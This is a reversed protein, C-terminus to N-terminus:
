AAHRRTIRAMSPLMHSLVQRLSRLQLRRPVATRQAWLSQWFKLAVTVVPRPGERLEEESDQYAHADILVIAM